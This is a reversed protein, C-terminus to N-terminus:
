SKRWSQPAFLILIPMVELRGILMLFALVIKSLNSFGAFNGIPGVVGLGPGVNGICTLAASFTTTFDYNDLAVILIGGILCFIYAPFFRLVSHVM